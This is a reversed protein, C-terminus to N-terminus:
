IRMNRNVRLRREEAEREQRLQEQQQALHQRAALEMQQKLTRTAMPLWNKFHDIVGQIEHEAAGVTATRGNFRFTQPSKGRVSSYSGMNYLAEM